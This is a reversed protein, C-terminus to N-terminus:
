SNIAVMLVSRTRALMKRSICRWKVPLYRRKDDEENAPSVFHGLIITSRRTPARYFARTVFRDRFSVNCPVPIARISNTLYIDSSPPDVFGRRTPIVTSRIRQLFKSRTSARRSVRGASANWGTMKTSVCFVSLESHWNIASLYYGTITNEFVACVKPENTGTSVKRRGYVM